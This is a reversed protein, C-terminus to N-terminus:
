FKKYQFAYVIFLILIFICGLMMLGELIRIIIYRSCFLLSLMLIISILVAVRVLLIFKFHLM